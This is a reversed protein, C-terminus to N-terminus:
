GATNDSPALDVLEQIRTALEPYSEQLGKRSCKELLDPRRMRHRFEVAANRQQRNVTMKKMIEFASGAQPPDGVATQLNMIRFQRETHRIM